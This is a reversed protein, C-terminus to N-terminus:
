QDLSRRNVKLESAPSGVFMSATRGSTLRAVIDSAMRREDILEIRKVIEQAQRDLFDASLLEDTRKQVQATMSSALRGAMASAAVNRRPMEASVAHRPAAASAGVPQGVAASAVPRAAASAVPRAAASAVPGAAASAVPRAAASAVPRAAASAAPWAGSAMREGAVSLAARHVADQLTATLKAAIESALQNAM